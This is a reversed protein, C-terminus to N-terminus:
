YNGVMFEMHEVVNLTNYVLDHQPVFGSLKAMLQRPVPRGNFMVHGGSQLKGRQSVTALLTTKGAGSAGMIATIEGSKAFGTVVFVFM